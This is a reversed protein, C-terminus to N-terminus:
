PVLLQFRSGTVEIEVPTKGLPDGDVHYPV